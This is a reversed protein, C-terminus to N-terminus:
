KRNFFTSSVLRIHIAQYLGVLWVMETVIAQILELPLDVLAMKSKDGKGTMFDAACKKDLEVPLLPSSGCLLKVVVNRISAARVCCLRTLDNGLRAKAAAPVLRLRPEGRLARGEVFRLILLIDLM